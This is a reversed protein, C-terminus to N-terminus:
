CPVGSHIGRIIGKFFALKYLKMIASGIKLTIDWINVTSAICLPFSLVSFNGISLRRLPRLRYAGEYM